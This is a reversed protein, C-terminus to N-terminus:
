KQNLLVKITPKDSNQIAITHLSRSDDSLHKIKKVVSSDKKDVFYEVLTQNKKDAKIYEDLVLTFYNKHQEYIAILFERGDRMVFCPDVGQELLYGLIDSDNLAYELPRSKDKWHVEDMSAGYEVLTKVNQLFKERIAIFIPTDGNNIPTNPNAKKDLLELLLLSNKSTAACLLNASYVKDDLTKEFLIKDLEKMKLRYLNIWMDVDFDITRSVISCLVEKNKKDLAIDLPTITNSNLSLPNAGNEILALAADYNKEFLSLHLLTNRQNDSSNVQSQWQKKLRFFLSNHEMIITKVNFPVTTIDEQLVSKIEDFRRNMKIDDFLELTLLITTDNALEAMFKKFDKKINPFNSEFFRSHQKHLEEFSRETYGILKAAVRKPLDVRMIHINSKNNQIDTDIKNYFEKFLLAYASRPATIYKRAATPIVNERSFALGVEKQMDALIKDIHQQITNDERLLEVVDLSTGDFVTDEFEEQEAIADLKNLILYCNAAHEPIFLVQKFIDMDAKKIGRSIDVIFIVIDAQNACTLINDILKDENLSSYGPTDYLIIGQELLPSPVFIKVTDEQGFITKQSIQKVLDALEEITEVELKQGNEDIIGYRVGYGIEFVAKTTEGFTADLVDKGFLLANLFTSKGASTEASVAIKIPTNANAVKQFGNYVQNLLATYQKYKDYDLEAFANRIYEISQRFDYSEDKIKSWHSDLVNEQTYTINPQPTNNEKKSEVISLENSSKNNEAELNSNPDVYGMDYVTQGKHNKIDLNAGQSVLFDVITDDELSIALMIGTWGSDDQTNIDFGQKLLKEIQQIDGMEIAEFWDDNIKTTNDKLAPPNELYKVIETHGYQSAWMLATKGDDDKAHVDAGNEVLYKVVNLHEEQSAFTLVTKGDINKANVDAGNEALYKVVNLHGNQSAWMLATNGNSDEANVDARKSILYKVVDLHGNFSSIELASHSFRFVLLRKIVGEANIDAGNEVLYKVVDLYGRDSAMILATCGDSNKANVDAGNAICRQVGALDGNQAHKILDDNISM